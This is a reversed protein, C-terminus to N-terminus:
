PPTQPSSVGQSSLDKPTGHKETAEVNFLKFESYRHENRLHRGNWDVTVAVQQPLAFERGISKFQVKGFAIETTQRELTVASLPALLDTRLHTIEYSEPDVWAVGQTFTPMSIERFKFAGHV